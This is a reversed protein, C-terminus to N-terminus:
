GADPENKGSQPDAPEDRGSRSEFAREVRYERLNRAQTFIIIEGVLGFGVIQVGLVAILFGILFLPRNWLGNGEILWRVVTYLVLSGGAGICLGGITGFFRLPKLTFKSLFLMGLVDIARRAYVGIGFLGAGGWERLHRVKVEVVAFGQRHAIVPLFRYMDGYLALEQLVERRLVRFTCNLDHFRMDVVRGMLWHFLASQVRNLLADIRPSRWPSVFDAGQDLAALMAGLDHPDVQVYHPSTVIVKGRAEAFAAQLCVSEGFSQQFAIARVRNEHEQALRGAELWAQGRVGDFVLIAEWSKGLRDLQHGLAEVLARVEAAGNTVPVIVSVDLAPQTERATSQMRPEAAKTAPVM